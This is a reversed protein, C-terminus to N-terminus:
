YFNNYYNNYQFLFESNRGRYAMTIAIFLLLFDIGFIISLISENGISCIDVEYNGIKNLNREKKIVGKQTSTWIILFIFQLIAAVIYVFYSKYKNNVKTINMNHYVSIVIESKISYACILGTIKIIFM